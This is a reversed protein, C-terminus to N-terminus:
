KEEYIKPNNIAGYYHEKARKIERPPTQPTKKLFAHLLIINKKIFTFYFIRRHNKSFDVILERIKGDIHKSLPENLYGDCARLLEIYKAIKASEKSQLSEIYTRVPEKGTKSDKYFKITYETLENYIM